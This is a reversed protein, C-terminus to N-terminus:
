GDEEPPSEFGMLGVTAVLGEDGSEEMRELAQEEAADVAQYASGLIETVERWGQEDLKVPKWTYHMDKRATFTGAEL